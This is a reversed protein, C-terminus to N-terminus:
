GPEWLALFLAATTRWSWRCHVDRFLRGWDISEATPYHRLGGRRRLSRPLLDRAWREAPRAVGNQQHAVAVSRCDSAVGNQNPGPKCEPLRVCDVGRRRRRLSM